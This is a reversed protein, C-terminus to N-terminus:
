KKYGVPHNLVVLQDDTLKLGEKLANANMYGRPVTVLGASACFLSINQSVMGVDAAGYKEIAARDNKMRDGYRTLDSVLLLCVPADNVFDQGVALSPILNEETVPNLAHAKFDYIFAGKTTCVYIDVDQANIASPATRLGQEPRNIGNAAWLLDSLDAKTLGATSFERTSRRESLAKMVSFERNLNPKDLQIVEQKEMNVVESKVNSATNEKAANGGGCSTFVVSALTVVFMSFKSRKM